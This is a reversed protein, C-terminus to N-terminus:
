FRLILLGYQGNAILVKGKFYNVRYCYGPTEYYGFGKPYPPNFLNFVEAGSNYEATFMFNPSYDIGRVDSDTNVQNVFYPNAPNGVNVVCVGATGDAIYVLNDAKKIDYCSGSTTFLCQIVPSAPNSIDVIECGTNKELLFALTGSIEIHEVTNQTIYTSVEFVSDPLASVNLIKIASQNLSVYLYGNKLYSSVAGGSYAIATDLIPSSPNTVNLIYLGNDLDSVFAFKKSAISDVFVEKAFGNTGYTFTLVPKAADSLNIIELGKQGDALFAYQTGNIFVGKVDRADGGTSLQGVLWMGTDYVYPPTEPVSDDPLKCGPQSLLAIATIIVSLIIHHKKIM